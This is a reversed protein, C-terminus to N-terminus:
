TGCFTQTVMEGAKPPVALHRYQEDPNFPRQLADVLDNFPKFDDEVASQICAEIQHNRPILVPNHQQMLAHQQEKSITQQALRQQWKEIWAQLAAPAEFYASTDITADSTTAITNTLYSFTLTFDANSEAMLDLLEALLQIDDSLSEESHQESIGIKALMCQSYAVQYHQPFEDLLAQAQALAADQDDNMLPLLAQAFNSLNWQAAAPQNAYAYRGMKDISSFVKKPNYEDLFACPGYDITEGSIAMNDTNMVGHIFGVSQWRAVLSAQKRIVADFLTAAQNSADQLKPYCTTIMHQVLAEIAPLDKRAIFYQFTGVRVHSNAVRTIIAGPLAGERIVVDGTSVAALARTTPIGLAAMAESMIYERLVPGLWARGDGNRSYPTRGAGKLQIERYQNNTDQLDGLMVARGDGLQPVWHGFQHGAYTMALPKAQDPVTNGAFIAAAEPHEFMAIDLGLETALESNFRIWQPKSVATPQVESFLQAPLEAFRNIFPISASSANTM